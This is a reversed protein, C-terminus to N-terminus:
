TNSKDEKRLIYWGLLSLISIFIGFSFWIVGNSYESESLIVRNPRNKLVTVQLKGENVLRDSLEKTFYPSAYVERNLVIYRITHQFNKIGDVILIHEAQKNSVALNATVEIANEQYERLQIYEIIGVVFMCISGVFLSSVFKIRKNM